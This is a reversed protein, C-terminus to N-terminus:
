AHHRPRRGNRTAERESWRAQAARSAQDSREAAKETQQQRVRELRANVLRGDDREVFKQRVVPWSRKWEAPTANGLRQLQQEDNPLSGDNWQHDLLERYLGRQELTMARATGSSMWDSVFWPYWPYLSAM